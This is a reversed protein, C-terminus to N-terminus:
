LNRSVFQTFTVAKLDKESIIPRDVRWDIALKPDNFIISRESAKDYYETCKYFFIAEDSLVSFGHAFGKPIWLQLHNEESLEISFYKGFTKSGSRVDVAVDLVKGYLVQCLKGQAKAGIQLHLGRVTNKASKSINDQVFKDKIGYEEYKKNSFSEFFYGRNDGFVDPMLILLDNIETTEIKM